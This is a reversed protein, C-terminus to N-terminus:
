FKLKLYKKYNISIIKKEINKIKTDRQETKNVNLSLNVILKM